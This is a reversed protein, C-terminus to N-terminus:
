NDREKNKKDNKKNTKNDEVTFKALSFFIKMMSIM